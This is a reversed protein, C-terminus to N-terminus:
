IENYTYTKYDSNPLPIGTRPLDRVQATVDEKKFYHVPFNCISISMVERETYSESIEKVETLMIILIRPFCLKYLSNKGRM